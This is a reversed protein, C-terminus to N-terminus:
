EPRDILYLLTSRSNAARGKERLVGAIESSLMDRALYGRMMSKSTLHQFVCCLCSDSRSSLYLGLYISLYLSLTPVRVLHDKSLRTLIPFRERDEKYLAMLTAWEM